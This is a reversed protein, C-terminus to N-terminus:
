QPPDLVLQITMGELQGTAGREADIRKPLPAAQSGPPVDQWSVYRIKWGDATTVQNRAPSAAYRQGGEATAYGQLWDRLGSVPLSWGLAQASLTDIDAATRPPKGGQTLTAQQPTVSITAVTQGLPSAVAVDTRGADQQWTFRGSLSDPKGDRTYNVSLKGALEVSDRYPAVTVTSAPSPPTGSAAGPHPGGPSACGSLLLATICPIALWHRVSSATAPAGHRLPAPELSINHITLFNTMITM